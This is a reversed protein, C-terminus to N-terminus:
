MFNKLRLNFVSIFDFMIRSILRIFPINFFFEYSVITKILRVNERDDSFSFNRLERFKRKDRDDTMMEIYFIEFGGLM